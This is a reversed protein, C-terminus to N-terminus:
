VHDEDIMKACEYYRELFGKQQLSGALLYLCDIVSFQPLNESGPEYFTAQSRNAFNGYNLGTLILEDALKAIPSGGVSTVAVTPIGKEKAYQLCQNVPGSRGMNSIGVLLDREDLVCVGAIMSHLDGFASCLVGLRVFRTFASQAALFSRGEGIFIVSRANLIKQAVRKIVKFDMLQLTDRLMEIESEIVYRCIGEPDDTNPVGGGYILSSANQQEKSALRHSLLSHQLSRHFTKFNDYGLMQVFRTVSANSVGAREAIDGITSNILEPSRTLILDAIQQMAPNFQTYNSKIILFPDSM